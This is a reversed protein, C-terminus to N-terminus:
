ALSCPTPSVYSVKLNMVNNLDLHLNPPGECLISVIHGKCIHGDCIYGDCIGGDGM